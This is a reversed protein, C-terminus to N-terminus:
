KNRKRVTTTIMDACIEPRRKTNADLGRTARADIDANIDAAGETERM